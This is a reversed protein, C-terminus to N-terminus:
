SVDPYVRALKQTTTNTREGIAVKVIAMRLPMNEQRLADCRDDASGRLSVTVAMRNSAFVFISSFKPTLQEKRFDPM